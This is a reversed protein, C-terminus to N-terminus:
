EKPELAITGLDLVENSAATAPVEFAVEGGAVLDWEGRQGEPPPAYLGATLDYTGPPVDYIHFEGAAEVDAVYTVPPEQRSVAVVRLLDFKDVAAGLSEPLEYELQGAVTCGGASIEVVVHEGPGPYIHVAHSVDVRGASLSYRGIVLPLAPVRTLEFRGDPGTPENWMWLMPSSSTAGELLVAVQVGAEPTDGRYVTGSITGWSTLTVTSGNAFEAPAFVAFGAQHVVLLGPPEPSGALEFKGDIGTKQYRSPDRLLALGLQGQQLIYFNGPLTCVVEAGVAPMGDPQMVTGSVAEGRQLTIILPEIPDGLHIAPGSAPYYGNASIEIAYRDTDQNAVNVQVLAIKFEGQPSSFTEGPSTTMFHLVDWGDMVHCTRAEFETVPKGTAGDVVRGTFVIRRYLIFEYPQDRAIVEHQSLYYERAEFSVWTTKGVPVHEIAFTGSADTQTSVGESRVDAGQVPEGDQDLVRGRILGGGLLTINLPPNGLAAEFPFVAPAYGHKRVKLEQSGPPICNLAFSGDAATRTSTLDETPWATTLPGGATRSDLAHYVLADPVPKGSGDRIVGAVPVGPHLAIVETGDRLSDLPPKM